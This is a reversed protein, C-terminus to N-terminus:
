GEAKLRRLTEAAMRQHEQSQKPDMQAAALYELWARRRQAVPAGLRDLTVAYNYHNGALTPDLSKGYAFIMRADEFEGEEFAVSGRLFLGEAASRDRIRFLIKFLLSFRPVFAMADGAGM